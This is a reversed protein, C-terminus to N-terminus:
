LISISGSSILTVKLSTLPTLSLNQIAMNKILKREYFINESNHILLPFLLSDAIFVIQKINDYLKQLQNHM